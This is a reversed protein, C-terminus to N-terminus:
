NRRACRHAISVEGSFGAALCPLEVEDARCLHQPTPGFNHFAVVFQQVFQQLRVATFDFTAM